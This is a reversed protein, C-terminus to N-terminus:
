NESPAATTSLVRDLLASSGPSLEGSTMSWKLYTHVLPHQRANSRLSWLASRLLLDRQVEPPADAFAATADAKKQWRETAGLDAHYALAELIRAVPAYLGSAFFRGWLADLQSAEALPAESDTPWAYTRFDELRIWTAFDIGAPSEMAARLHHGLVLSLPYAADPDANALRTAFAPLLWPNDVLIQDYFGLLSPLAANRQDAPLRAFLPFLAPLASEPAPQQYYTNFWLAPDFTAPLDPATYDALTFTHTLERTEGALHDTVRVTVLYDGAPDDPEAQYSLTTTPYLVFGPGGVSGQWLVASITDGDHRGDPKRITLDYTIDSRRDATVGYNAALPVLYAHQGRYLRKTPVYRPGTKGFAYPFLDGHAVQTTVVLTPAFPAGPQQRSFTTGRATLRTSAENAAGSAPKISQSFASSASTPPIPRHTCGVAAGLLGLLFLVRLVRSPM